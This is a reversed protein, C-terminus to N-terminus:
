SAAKLLNKARRAASPIVLSLVSNTMVASSFSWKAPDTCCATGGPHSPTVVGQV